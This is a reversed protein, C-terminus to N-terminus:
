FHPHSLLFQGSKVSGLEKGSLINYLVQKTEFPSLRMLYETALQGDCNFHLALESAMVQIILGIRLRLLDLFLKPSSRIFMGLYIIIEQALVAIELDDKFAKMVVNHLDGDSLPKDITEECGTRPFGVTVQKQRVLLDTLFQSLGPVTSILLSSMQRVILWDLNNAAVLYIEEILESLKLYKDGNFENKLEFIKMLIDAQEQINNTKRLIELLSETKNSKEMQSKVSVDEVIAQVIKEQKIYKQRKLKKSFDFKDIKVLDNTLDNRSKIETLNEPHEFSDEPLNKNSHDTSSSVQQLRKQQFNKDNFFLKQLSKSSVDDKQDLFTLKTICSTSLFKNLTGLVVRVGSLYGAQMKKLVSILTPKFENENEMLMGRHIPLLVLPRGLSTWTSVLYQLETVLMDVLMETDLCMYFDRQDLLKPTFIFTDGRIQYVKSTSLIGMQSDPRGSLKLKENKGLSSYVESLCRAHKVSIPSIDKETESTIDLRNKLMKQFREEEPMIVIQVVIDPKLQTSFRRNLPDIEGPELFGEWILNALIYLSQGWLHPLKGVAVRDQSHPDNKEAEVKDKPVTYLEPMWYIGNELILIEKIAELYEEAQEMNNNILGDLMFFTWFLPWECEIHEFVKLEALEYHLRSLDECATKYGDRLFRCCGYRGQLKDTIVKKTLQVLDPDSVAFAPYSVIALLSSDIEKSNSERPLMSELIVKCLAKEDPTVHIVSQQGGSPGFLNLQDIAELAAQFHIL